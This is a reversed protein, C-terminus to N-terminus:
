CSVSLFQSTGHIRLEKSDAPLFICDGRYFDIYGNDWFLVGCGDTCLLIQCTNSGTKFIAMKRTRETNVIMREVQFYQCRCLLETCYGNHFRKVRLPQRPEIAADYCMVDLAKAIHLQRKKGQKDTRNYDYIRYTINSSEQVEAIIAGACIAHVTGAPIFFVDGKKIHVKQLLKELSLTEIAAKVEERNVNKRFGYILKANEAAELVYWMETKGRECEHSLAYIDDPHVQVSLNKQADILKILIPLEKGPHTGLFHPYRNLIDVLKEGKFAGSAIISEGDPHVSCEWTEALPSLDIEKSFEENLKNGGWIYDKGIPKLLFPENNM